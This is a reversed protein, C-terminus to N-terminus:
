SDGCEKAFLIPYTIFTEIFAKAFRDLLANIEADRSEQRFRHVAFLTEGVARQWAMDPYYVRIQSLQQLNINARTTYVFSVRAVEQRYLASRFYGAMYLPDVVDAKIPRLRKLYAGYVADMDKFAVSCCALAEVTESTRNLLVDGRKIAYKGAAAAPLAVRASFHDPLFMHHIVTKVDAMPTGHGFAQKEATVGGFIEYIEPLYASNWNAPATKTKWIRINEKLPAASIRRCLTDALASFDASIQALSPLAQEKPRTYLNPSLIYQRQALETHLVAAYWETRKLLAGQQYRCLLDHLIAGGQRDRFDLQRADVLLVTDRAASRHIVWACCPVKTNYFLKPPLAIVAEVWGDLLINRRIQSEARNQTTLTSNPLLVVARGNGSLHSIIHQLWAFNANKRPPYGYQWRADRRGFADACWDSLNFPPNALIYDFSAGAHIDKLLTNAAHKGLNVSLGRLALNMQCTTFARQHLTQGYLRLKKDPNQEAAGCLIAGSGCCPDYVTGGHEMDLLQVMCAIVQKPTYFDGSKPLAEGAERSLIHAYVCSLIDQDAPLGSLRYVMQKLAPGDVAATDLRSALEAAFPLVSQIQEMACRIASLIQGDDRHLAQMIRDWPTEGSNCGEAKSWRQDPAASVCRILLLCSVIDPEAADAFQLIDKWFPRATDM